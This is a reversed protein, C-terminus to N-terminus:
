LLGTLCHKDAPLCFQTIVTHDGNVTETRDPVNVPEEVLGRGGGMTPCMGQEPISQSFFSFKILSCILVYMSVLEAYTSNSFGLKGFLESFIIQFM